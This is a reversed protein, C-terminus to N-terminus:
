SVRIVVHKKKGASLKIVGEANIDAVGIKANEDTLPSCRQAQRRQGQHPPRAESKSTAFAAQVLLDIIAIGASLDGRAIDLTPLDGGLGGEVFM